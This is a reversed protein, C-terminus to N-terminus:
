IKAEPWCTLLREVLYLCALRWFKPSLYKSTFCEM